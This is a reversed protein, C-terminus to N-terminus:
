PVNGLEERLDVLEVTIEHALAHSNWKDPHFKSILIKLKRQLDASNQRQATGAHHSQLCRFKLEKNESRLRANERMAEVWKDRQEKEQNKLRTNEKKLRTNEEMLEV